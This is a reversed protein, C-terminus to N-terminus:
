VGKTKLIVLTQDDDRDRGGAWTEIQAFIAQRLEDAALQRHEQAFALLRAEGYEEGLTNQAESIGDSYLLLLNGAALTLSEEEYQAWEFVGIITGGATLREVTGDARILLGANHGANLYRLRRARDDYLALFLTAFLNDDTSRRLQENISSVMAAVAGETEANDWDTLSLVDEGGASVALAHQSIKLRENFITTQARLAAQLNSMVLSASIGKGSVDGLALVVLGPAIEIFDYYDGAVGLAARCEGAIAASELEPAATPFLRRQVEAAIEVERELRERAVREHLLSEINTSMDNFAEALEGLQDHSRVQARYSFDGRKIHETAVYLKHVTGTVARTIWAASLLALLELVLFFIAILLFLNRFIRGLGNDELLQNSAQALSTEYMFTLRPSEVGTRWNTAPLLVISSPISSVNTPEGLQDRRFDINAEAQPRNAGDVVAPQNASAPQAREGAPPAASREEDDLSLNVREAGIFFPHLHIGTTARLESLLAPSIPVALLLAVAQGNAERRVFARVSPTGFADTSQPPPFYALGSWEERGRLWAPLPASLPTADSGVGRMSEDAPESFLQAPSREGLIARAVEDAQEPAGNARAARWVAVRAGPLAAQALAIQEDLHTRLSRDDADAPLRALTDAMTRASALTQRELSSMQVSVVRVIAQNLGAIGILSGLAALLIIPTLGVFLYTIILRRRVRWLLRRKLWRLGKYGYYFATFAVVVFTIRGFIERAGSQRLAASEGSLLWVVFLAAAAIAVPPM